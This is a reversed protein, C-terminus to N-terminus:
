KVDYNSPRGQLNTPWMGVYSYILLSTLRVTPEIYQELLLCAQQYGNGSLAYVTNIIFFPRVTLDFLLITRLITEGITIKSGCGDDM